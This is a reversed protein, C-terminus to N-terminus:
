IITILQSGKLWSKWRKFKHLEDLILLKNELSWRRNLILRKHQEDDWNLYVPDLFSGMLSKALTTKGRQRPGGIFVMKQKIDELVWPALYRMPSYYVM